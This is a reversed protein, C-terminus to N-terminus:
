GHGKGTFLHGVLQNVHQQDVAVLSATRRPEAMGPPRHDRVELFGHVRVGVVFVQGNTPVKSASALELAAWVRTPGPFRKRTASVPRVM